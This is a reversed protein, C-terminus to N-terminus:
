SLDSTQIENQSKFSGSYWDFRRTIAMFIALAIFLGLSGILFAREELSLLVYFFGSLVLQETLIMRVFKKDRLFGHVYFVILGTVALSSILYAIDFGLSESLALLLLYFISISLGILGYQLPHIKAKSMFEVVFVLIFTLAIFLIGYKVAKETMAYNNDIWLHGLGISKADRYADGETPLTNLTWSAEFGNSTLASETPLISGAFKPKTWNGLMRVKDQNAFTFYSLNGTGRATVEIEFEKGFFDKSELDETSIRLGESVMRAKIEKGTAVEKIKVSQIASTPKVSLTLEDPEPNKPAKTPPVGKKPTPKTYSVKTKFTTVYVPVKFIGRKKEKSDVSITTESLTPHQDGDSTLVIPSAFSLDGGWGKAVEQQAITDFDRRSGIQNEVQSLPVLLAFTLGVIALIKKTTSPQNM